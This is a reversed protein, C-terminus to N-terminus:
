GGPDWTGPGAARGEVVVADDNCTFGLTPSREVGIGPVGDPTFCVPLPFVRLLCTSRLDFAHKEAAGPMSRRIYPSGPVSALPM